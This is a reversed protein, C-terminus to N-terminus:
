LCCSPSSVSGGVFVTRIQERLPADQHIPEPNFVLLPSLGSLEPEESHFCVSLRCVSNEPLKGQFNVVVCITFSNKHAPKLIQLLNSCCYYLYADVLLRSLVGPQTICVPGAHGGSQRCPQPCLLTAESFPMVCHSIPATSTAQDAFRKSHM